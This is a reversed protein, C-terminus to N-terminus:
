LSLESDKFCVETEFEKKHKPKNLYLNFRKSDVVQSAGKTNTGTSIEYSSSFSVYEM